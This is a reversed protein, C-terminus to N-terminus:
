KDEGKIGAFMSLPTESYVPRVRPKEKVDVGESRLLRIVLDYCTRGGCAGMGVRIAKLQNLDTIGERILKRIEGATVRECRCIVTDDDVFEKMAEVPMELSAKDQVMIGVICHSLDEPVLLTVLLRRDQSKRDKIATVEARALINGDIDVAHVHDGVTFAPNVEFPVTLHVYGEPSKRTDILTVALGPCILVCKACGSCDGGFVPLDLIDKRVENLMISNMPCVSICPNCPIEEICHIVPFVKLDKHFRPMYQHRKQPRLSLIKQKERLEGISPIDHGLFKLIELGSLRGGFMAASAEAIEHADGSSFTPIGLRKGNETFEDIPTLGVSILVTDCFFTKETGAVPKFNKDIEAITISEAKDKGNVSIATHQTYVPVGLRKLKSSHVYYGSCEPLAEVLGVVTMGAQIAHYAAILGVNGGGIVFIRESTKILDRNVLTQFAGAGYVGPLACGPFAIAKERAGATNLLVKPKILLYEDRRIVGVKKDEYIGIANSELYIEVTSYQKIKETLITGIDIGRTGAYCDKISGFFQHTQLVLKGGLKEKDDVVLVKINKKGLEIAASLGAPGGGIILVDVEKERIDSTKIEKKEDVPLICPVDELSEVRMGDKVPTICAKQPLGDVLVLCQACQGNACFIGQPSKDKKHKRFTHVGNAFLASSIMEGPRARMVQGNFFFDIFNDKSTEKLIPHNKVRHM